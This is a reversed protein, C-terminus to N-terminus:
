RGTRFRRSAALGPPVAGSVSLTREEDGAVMVTRSTLSPSPTRAAPTMPRANQAIQCRRPQALDASRHAPDPAARTSDYSERDSPERVLVTSGDRGGSAHYPPAM